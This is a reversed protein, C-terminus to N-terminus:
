LEQEGLYVRRVREDERVESPPGDAIKEGRHLVIIRDAVERVVAMKHEILIIPHDDALEGLLHIVETTEEPSMGSSPEDLLLLKPDTGLAVAVELTRQECHSLNAAPTDRKDALGVRELVAEARRNSQEDDEIDSWFDFHRGDTQAAVRVNELVSMRDFLQAIQYSRVLGRKAIEAASLDTIDEGDFRIRGASPALTGTLLNFLTTKGAGNPGIIAVLEEGGFSATVGDVATIGGFDKTLNEVELVGNSM